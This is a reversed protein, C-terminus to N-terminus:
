KLQKRAYELREKADELRARLNNVLMNMEPDYTGSLGDIQKKFDDVIKELKRVDQAPKGKAEIDAKKKELGPREKPGAYKLQDEVDQREKEAADVKAKAKDTEDKTLAMNIADKWQPNKEAAKLLNAKINDDSFGGSRGRAIQELFFDVNGADKGQLFEKQAGSAFDKVGSQLRYYDVQENEDLFKVIKTGPPGEKRMTLPNTSIEHVRGQEDLGLDTARAQTLAWQNLKFTMSEGTNSNTAYRQRLEERYKQDRLGKEARAIAGNEASTLKEGKEMKEIIGQAVEQPVLGSYLLPVVVSLQRGIKQELINNSSRLNEIQVAFKNNLQAIDLDYGHKIGALLRTQGFQKDSMKEQFGSERAFQRIAKDEARNEAAIQRTNAREEAEVARGESMRAALDQLQFQVGVKQIDRSREQRAQREKGKERLQDLLAVGPNPSTATGIGQAISEVIRQWIPVPEQREQLGGLIRKLEEENQM